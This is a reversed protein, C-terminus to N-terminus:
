PLRLIRCIIDWTNKSDIRRIIKKIDSLRKERKYIEDRGTVGDSIFLVNVIDGLSTHKAITGAMGLVEDDPHAAIIAVHKGM